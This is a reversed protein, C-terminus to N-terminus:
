IEGCRELVTQIVAAAIRFDSVHLEAFVTRASEILGHQKALGIVAATGAVRLGLEQAVSRGAREDILLLAEGPAELALRISAVEGEDLDPLEPEQATSNVVKLWGANLAAQIRSESEPFTGTLVEGIVVDTVLVEQFLAQLWSLGNVRALGILPSADAIVVADV